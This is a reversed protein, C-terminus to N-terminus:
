PLPLETQDNTIRSYTLIQQQVLRSNPMPELVTLTDYNAQTAM